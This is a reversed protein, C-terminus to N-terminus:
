SVNKFTLLKKHFNKVRGDSIRIGERRLRRAKEAPGRSYGGLTGNSNVVKYCPIDETHPNKNLISGVARYGKTGLADAIAKYTTVKGKPVLMLLKYVKTDLNM